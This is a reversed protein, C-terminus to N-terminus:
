KVITKTLNFFMYSNLALLLLGMDAQLKLFIYLSLALSAITM